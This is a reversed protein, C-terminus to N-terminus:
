GGTQRARLLSYRGAVRGVKKKEGYLMVGLYRISEPPTAGMMRRFEAYNTTQQGHAPFDVVTLGAELAKRRVGPLDDAPAGLVPIGIPILGPHQNGAQDILPEGVLHPQRAGMTLAKVAAANAAHGVPLSADIIAVCRTPESRHEEPDREM